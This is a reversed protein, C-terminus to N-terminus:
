SRSSSNRAVTPHPHQFTIGAERSGSFWGELGGKYRMIKLSEFSNCTTVKKMKMKLECNNMTLKKKRHTNPSNTHTSPHTGTHLCASTCVQIYLGWTSTLHEGPDSQKIYQPLHERKFGSSMSRVLSALWNERPIRQTGWQASSNSIPVTGVQSKPPHQPDSSRANACYTHLGHHTNQLFIILKQQSM